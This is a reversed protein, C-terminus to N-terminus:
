SFFTTLFKWFFEFLNFGTARYLGISAAIVVCITMILKIVFEKQLLSKMYKKNNEYTASEDPVYETYQSQSETQTNHYLEVEEYEDAYQKEKVIMAKLEENEAKLLTLESEYEAELLKDYDRRKTEDSLVEYAENLKKLREEAKLKEEGQFLDPHNEKIHLKYVGKIVKATAHKDVELIEYYNKM